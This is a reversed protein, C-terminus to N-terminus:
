RHSIKRLLDQDLVIIRAYSIDSLHIKQESDPKGASGKINKIIIGDDSVALLKGKFNGSRTSVSVNEGIASQFDQQNRIKRELGPSSVELFYRERILDAVDLRESLKNSVQECMDLTIGDKSSIWVRLFRGKFEVDYLEVNCSSVVEEIIASLEPTISKNMM